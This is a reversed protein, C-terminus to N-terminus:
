RSIEFETPAGSPQHSLLQAELRQFLEDPVSAKLAKNLRQKRQAAQLCDLQRCLYASRGMGEELLVQHSDFQRVLRWLQSRPFLQRCAVCRRLPDGGSM